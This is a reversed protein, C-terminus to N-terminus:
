RRFKRPHHNFNKHPKIFLSQNIALRPQHIPARNTQRHKAIQLNQVLLPRSRQPVNPEGNHTRLFENHHSRRPWLRHKAVRSHRHMWRIFPIACQNSFFHPQRQHVPLNRNDAVLDHFPFKPRARHLNSGRMVRIVKRNALSMPQFFNIHHRCVRLHVRIGSRVRSQIAKRRSLFNHRIQLFLSKQHLHFRVRM